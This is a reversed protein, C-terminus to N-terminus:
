VNVVLWFHRFFFHKYLNRSFIAIPRKGWISLVFTDSTDSIGRMRIIYTSYYHLSLISKVLVGHNERSSYFDINGREKYNIFFCYEIFSLPRKNEQIKCNRKLSRLTILRWKTKVSKREPDKYKSLWVEYSRRQFDNERYYIVFSLIHVEVKTEIFSCDKETPIVIERVIEFPAKYMETVTKRLM